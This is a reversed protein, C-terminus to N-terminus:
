RAHALHEEILKVVMGWDQENATFAKARRANVSSSTASPTISVTPERSYDMEPDVAGAHWRFSFLQEPEIKEITIEFPTGEYEEPCEGSRCEGGTNM